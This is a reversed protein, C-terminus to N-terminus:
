RDGTPLHDQARKISGRLLKLTPLNGDLEKIRSNLLQQVPEETYELLEAEEVEGITAILRCNLVVEQVLLNVADNITKNRESESETKEQTKQELEQQLKKARKASKTKDEQNKEAAAIIIQELTKTKTLGWEKSIKELKTSVGQSLQFNALKGKRDRLAKQYWVGRMARIIERGDSNQLLPTLVKLLLDNPDISQPNLPALLHGRGKRYLYNAIWPAQSEYSADVWQLLSRYKTNPTEM